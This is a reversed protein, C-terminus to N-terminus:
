TMYSAMRELRIAKVSLQRTEGPRLDTAVADDGLRNGRRTNAVVELLDLEERLLDLLDTCEPAVPLAVVGRVSGVLGAPIDVDEALRLLLRSLVLHNDSLWRGRFM